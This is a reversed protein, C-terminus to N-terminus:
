LCNFFFDMVAFGDGFIVRCAFLQQYAVIREKWAVDGLGEKARPQELLLRLEWKGGASSESIGPVRM